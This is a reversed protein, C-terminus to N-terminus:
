FDLYVEARRNESRGTPNDTGDEKFNPKRPRSEGYGETIVQTPRAGRAILGQRIAEARKQSLGRNYDDTGLADAHGTIRIKRTPDINLINVLIKLQNDARSSLSAEDFDFYVVLSEGGAPDEVIPSYPGDVDKALSAIVKGFTLGNVKWSSDNELELAFESSHQPSNVRSLIWSMSDRAFTVILPRDERMTFNGEELAIMLGAIREDTVKDGCMKRASVFDETLVAKSFASAVNLSDLKVGPPAMEPNQIAAIVEKLTPPFSVGSVKYTNNEKQKAVDMVVSQPEAAGEKTPVFNMMWRVSDRTKAVEWFPRNPDLKLNPDEIVSKLRERIEEPVNKGGAVTMFENFDKKMAGNAAGDVVGNPTTSTAGNGPTAPPTMTVAPTPPAAPAAPSPQVPTTARMQPDTKAVTVPAAPTAPAAAVAPKTAAVTQSNGPSPPTPAAPANGVSKGASEPDGPAAETPQSSAKPASTAATESKDPTSLAEPGVIDGGDGETKHCKTLTFLSIAIGVAVIGFFVLLKAKM